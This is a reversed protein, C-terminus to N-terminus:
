DIISNLLEKTSRSRLKHVVYIFFCGAFFLVALIGLSLSGSIQLISSAMKISTVRQVIGTIISYGAATILVAIPIAIICIMILQMLLLLYVNKRGMGLTLLIGSSVSYVKIYKEIMLYVTLVLGVVLAAGIIIYFSNALVQIKDLNQLSSYATYAGYRFSKNYYLDRLDETDADIWDDFLYIYRTAPAQIKFAPSDSHLIFNPSIVDYNHGIIAFYENRIIGCLTATFIPSKDGDITATIEKGLADSTDIGYNELVRQAIVVENASEPMRGIVPSDIGYSVWLARSDNANFPNDTFLAVGLSSVGESKRYTKGEITMFVYRTTCAPAKEDNYVEKMRDGLSLVRYTYLEYGTYGYEELLSDREWTSWFYNGSVAEEYMEAKRTTLAQNYILFMCILSALCAFSICMKANIWFYEKLNRFALKLMSFFKSM